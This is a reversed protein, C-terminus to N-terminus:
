LMTFEAIYFTIRDKGRGSLHSVSKGIIWYASSVRKIISAHGLCSKARLARRLM